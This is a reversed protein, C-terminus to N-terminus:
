GEARDMEGEDRGQVDGGGSLLKEIAERNITYNSELRSGFSRVFAALNVEESPLDRLNPPKYTLNLVSFCSSRIRVEGREDPESDPWRAYVGFSAEEEADLEYGIGESSIVYMRGSPLDVYAWSEAGFDFTSPTEEDPKHEEWWGRCSDLDESFDVQKVMVDTKTREYGMM